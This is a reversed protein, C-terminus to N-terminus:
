DVKEMWNALDKESTFDFLAEGLEELKELSLNGIKSEITRTVVGFRKKVLRLILALEGDKKGQQLGEKKGQQLGQQIGDEMWSTVIQMVQEKETPIIQDIEQRFIELEQANLKLYTDVFGSILQMKARDLKLTALLRLCELKVKARETSKIEMKAMLASAVPNPKNVFDRWNLQNLQIVRYNFSLVTFDPFAVQYSNSEPRKPEDYSFIAIPYIPLEHLDLLMSFYRFMRRNFTGRAESQNELHILFFAEKELFKAKAVLDLERREGSTIDSFIEKDLFVISDKDLYNLVEPFFLELFELFFVQLLQKFLKDHDTRKM